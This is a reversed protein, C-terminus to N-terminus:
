IVDLPWNKFRATAQAFSYFYRIITVVITNIFTIETEKSFAFHNEDLLISWTIETGDLEYQLDLDEAWEVADLGLLVISPKEEPQMVLATM